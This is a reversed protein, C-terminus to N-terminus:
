SIFAKLIEKTSQPRHLRRHLPPRLAALYQADFAGLAAEVTAGFGVASDRSNNALIAVWEDSRPLLMPRHVASPGGPHAAFYLEAREKTIFTRAGFTKRM